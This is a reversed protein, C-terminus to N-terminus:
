AKDYQSQAEYTLGRGTYALYSNPDLRIAEDFDRISADYDPSPSKERWLRGRRSHYFAENPDLRIAESFDEIAEDVEFVRAHLEGRICHDLPNGPNLRITENLTEIGDLVYGADWSDHLRLLVEKGQGAIRNKLEILSDANM